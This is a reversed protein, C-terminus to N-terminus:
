LALIHTVHIDGYFRSPGTCMLSSDVVFLSLAEVDWYGAAFVLRNVFGYVAHVWPDLPAM